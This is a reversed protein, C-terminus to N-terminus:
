SNQSDNNYLKECINVFRELKTEDHKVFLRKLTQEIKLTQIKAQFAMKKQKQQNYRIKLTM